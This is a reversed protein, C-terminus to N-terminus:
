QRAELTVNVKITQGARQVVVVVVDGPKKIQLAYTFDYLNKIEKGDFQIMLDGSRLGAKAAPSDPRVDAFLVGNLDDRFDPVSGFYPGYASGPSGATSGRPQQQHVETYQLRSPENAIDTALEYALSLVRIAGPANVKDATDSPRHYDAHLGTFFFLIPIHKENFSAHDSGSMSSESYDLRLHLLGAAKDLWGRFNPATGVGGIFVQDNKLRGIMDMNLMAIINDLPVTPNNVFHASGLLGLEEGAFTIFLISRKFSRRDAAAVRAVEIVGSSGSANDDAGHHIQGIQSPALSHSDGLGLHDYHGGIVVWENRLIPDSGPLAGIVNRVPKRVHTVDTTMRLRVGALEFSAPKLTRDMTQQLATLDKGAKAFLALIPGRRAHISAIGVDTAEIAKTAPGVEDPKNDPNPPDTIFVTGGAGHQRANVAKNVFAAHATFNKGNWRSNSDLEQPEHRFVLVVKGKVDIGNYDDWQFEPATIGYGAFVIDSEIDDSNSFAIPVFDKKNELATGAIELRNRTGFEAGTAIEFTQFYTDNDGAPSLGATRFQSAIYDAAKELEPSGSARGKLEDSSLYTVDRLYREASLQGLEAVPSLAVVGPPALLSYSRLASLAFFAILAAGRLYHTRTNM